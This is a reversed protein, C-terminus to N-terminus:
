SAALFRRVAAVFQDPGTTMGEHAQGELVEVRASPLVGLLLDTLYLDRPSASGVLLLVPAAIRRYREPDVTHRILADQDQQTAPADAIWPAWGPSAALAEVEAAPVQLLDLLFTRVLGDWDGREAHARLRAIQEPRAVDPRPPEYLVLRSISEPALAAAEVACLAGYSHGLLAAPGGISRLVAVVDVAEDAVAHGRTASTKGRGRRAVAYITFRAALAESVEQWNSRHDSFGGHVLVLPPGSGYRDFSVTAGGAGIVQEM